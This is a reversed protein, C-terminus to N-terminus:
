RPTRRWTKLHTLLAQLHSDKIPDTMRVTHHRSGDDVTITYQRHDAAGPRPTGVVAPLEFFHVADLLQRLKETEQTSLTKSDITIPKSLGPIFALGGEIQLQVQM